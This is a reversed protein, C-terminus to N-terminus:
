YSVEGDQKQAVAEGAAIQERFAKAALYQDKNQVPSVTEVKWGRWTGKDNSEPVTSLKYQHSFMPPTFMTGDSRTMKLNNMMTMWRRSKKLQTSSMTVVAPEFSGDENVILVYHNRTDVLYNGNPLVDRFKEDRTTEKVIPDDATHQGALGGGSEKPTWELYRRTYMVPIVLVGNEGDYLENTATNFLAGPKAGEMYAGDDPDVQPSGKQLVRLFPISYAENDAEEFGLGADQEIDDMIMLEAKEKKAVAKTM